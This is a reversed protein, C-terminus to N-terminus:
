FRRWASVVWGQEEFDGSVEERWGLGIALTDDWDYLLTTETKTSQGFEGDESWVKAIFGLRPAVDIGATIEYVEHQCTEGRSKFGAEVNVFAERGLVPYSTGIAARTEVGESDCDPGDLSEGGLYSAIM